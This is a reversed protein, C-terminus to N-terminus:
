CQSVHAWNSNPVGGPATRQSMPYLSGEPGEELPSGPNLAAGPNPGAQRLEHQKVAASFTSTIAPEELIFPKEDESDSLM